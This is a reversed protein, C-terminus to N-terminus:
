SKKNINMCGKDECDICSQPHKGIWGILIKQNRLKFYIRCTNNFDSGGLRYFDTKFETETIPKLHLNFYDNNDEDDKFRRHPCNKKKYEEDLSCLCGHANLLFVLDKEEEINKKKIVNITNNLTKLYHYLRTAILKDGSININDSNSQTKLLPFKVVLKDISVKIKDLSVDKGYALYDSYKENIMSMAQEINDMNENKKILKIATQVGIVNVKSRKNENFCMIVEQRFGDKGSIVIFDEDESMYNYNLEAIFGLYRKFIRVLKYYNGLEPPYVNNDYIIYDYKKNQSYEIDDEPINVYIGRNKNKLDTIRLKKSINEYYYELIVKIPMAFDLQKIKLIEIRKELDNDCHYDCEDLRIKIRNVYNITVTPCEELIRIANVNSIFRQINNYEKELNNEFRAPIAFVSPDVTLNIM